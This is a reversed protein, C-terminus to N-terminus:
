GPSCVSVNSLLGKLNNSTWNERSLLVSGVCDELSKCMASKRVRVKSAFFSNYFSNYFALVNTM